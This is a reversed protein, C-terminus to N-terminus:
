NDKLFDAVESGHNPPALQIVRGLKETKYKHLIALTLLGGMSYGTFNIKKDETLKTSLDLHIIEVLEEITYDTSPYDINIVDYGNNQLFEALPEMHSSSRAIGHLLVVYDGSTKQAQSACPM